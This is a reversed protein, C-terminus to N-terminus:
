AHVAPRDGNFQPVPSAEAVSSTQKYREVLGRIDDKIQALDTLTGDVRKFLAIIEKKLREREEPAVASEVRGSIETLQTRLETLWQDSM